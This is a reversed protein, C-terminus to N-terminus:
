NPSLEAAVLEASASQEEPSRRQNFVRGLAVGTAAWFAAIAAGIAAMAAIGLGM